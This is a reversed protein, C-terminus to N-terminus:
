MGETCECVHTCRWGRRYMYLVYMFYLCVCVCKVKYGLTVEFEFDVQKLRMLALFVRAVM